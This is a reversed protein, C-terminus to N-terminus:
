VRTQSKSDITHLHSHSSFFSIYRFFRRLQMGYVEFSNFCKIFYCQIDACYFHFKLRGIRFICKSFKIWKSKQIIWWPSLFFFIFGNKNAVMALFFLSYLSWYKLCNIQLQPTSNHPFLCKIFAFFFSVKPLSLCEIFITSHKDHRSCVTAFIISEKGNRLHDKHCQHTYSPRCHLFYIM